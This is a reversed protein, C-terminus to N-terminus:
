FRHAGRQPAPPNSERGGGGLTVPPDEGSRTLALGIAV